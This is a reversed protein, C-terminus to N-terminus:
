FPDPRVPCLVADEIRKEGESEAWRAAMELLELVLAEMDRPATERKRVRCVGRGTEHLTRLLGTPIYALGREMRGELIAALNDPSEKLDARRRLGAAGSRLADVLERNRAGEMRIELAIADTRLAVMFAERARRAAEEDAAARGLIRIPDVKRDPGAHEIANASLEMAEAARRMASIEGDEGAPDEDEDRAGTAQM